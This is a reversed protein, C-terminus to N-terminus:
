ELFDKIFNLDQDTKKDRKLSEPSLSDQLRKRMTLLAEYIFDNDPESGQIKGLSLTKEIINLAEEKCKRIDEVTKRNTLKELLDQQQNNLENVDEVFKGLDNM